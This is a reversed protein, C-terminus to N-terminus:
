LTRSGLPEAIASAPAHDAIPESRLSAEYPGEVFWRVRTPDPGQHFTTARAQLEREARTPRHLQRLYDHWTPYHLREIWITPDAIERALSWDTAGNRKRSLRVALMADYFDRARTPDVRYEIEVAIPGQEGDLAPESDVGAEAAV